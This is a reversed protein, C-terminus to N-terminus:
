CLQSEIAAGLSPAQSSRWSHRRLSHSQRNRAMTHSRGPVGRVSQNALTLIAAWDEARTRESGRWRRDLGESRRGPRATSGGCRGALVRRLGPVMTCLPAEDRSAARRLRGSRLVSGMWPQWDAIPVEALEPDRDGDPLRGAVRKTETDSASPRRALLHSSRSHRDCRVGSHSRPTSDGTFDAANRHIFHWFDQGGDLDLEIPAESLAERADALPGGTGSPGAGPGAM